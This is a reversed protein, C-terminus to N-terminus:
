IETYKVKGSLFISATFLLNFMPLKGLMTSEVM